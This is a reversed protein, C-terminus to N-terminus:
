TKAPLRAVAPAIVPMYTASATNARTSAPADSSRLDASGFSASSFVRRRTQAVVGSAGRREARLTASLRGIGELALPGNGSMDRRGREISASAGPRSEFNAQDIALIM